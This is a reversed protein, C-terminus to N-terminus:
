PNRVGLDNSSLCVLLLSSISWYGRLDFLWVFRDLSMRGMGLMWATAFHPLTISLMLVLVHFCAVHLAMRAGGIHQELLAHYTHTNDPCALAM